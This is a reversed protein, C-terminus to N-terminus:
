QFFTFKGTPAFQSYHPIPDVEEEWWEEEGGLLDVPHTCTANHATLIGAICGDVDVPDSRSGKGSQVKKNVKKTQGAKGLLQSYFFTSYYHNRTATVGDLLLAQDRKRLLTIFFNIVEDSLWEGPRLTRFQKLHCSKKLQRQNSASNDEEIDAVIQNDSGALRSPGLYRNILQQMVSHGSGVPSDPMRVVPTPPFRSLCMINCSHFGVITVPGVWTRTGDTTTGATLHAVIKGQQCGPQKCRYTVYEGGDRKWPKVSQGAFYRKATNTFAPRCSFKMGHLLRWGRVPISIQTSCCSQCPISYVVNVVGPVRRKKNNEKGTVLIRRVHIKVRGCHCSDCCYTDNVGNSQQKDLVFTVGRYCAYVDMHRRFEQRSQYHQGTSPLVVRPDLGILPRHFGDPKGNADMM